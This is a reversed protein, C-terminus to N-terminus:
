DTHSHEHLVGMLTILGTLHLTIIYGRERLELYGVSACYLKSVQPRSNIGGYIMGQSCIIGDQISQMFHIM